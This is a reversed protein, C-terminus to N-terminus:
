CGYLNTWIFVHGLCSEFTLGLCRDRSLNSVHHSLCSPWWKIEIVNSYFENFKLSIRSKQWIISQNQGATLPQPVAGSRQHSYVVSIALSSTSMTQKRHVNRKTLDKRVYYDHKLQQKPKCQKGFFTETIWKCVKFFYMFCRRSDKVPRPRVKKAPRDTKSCATLTFIFVLVFKIIISFLLYHFTVGHM